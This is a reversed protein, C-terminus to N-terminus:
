NKNIVKIVSEIIKEKLVKEEIVNIAFTRNGAYNISTGCHYVKKKDIIFFRDHYNDNHIVSLNSYEKNYKQIDLSKLMSKTKTILIINVKLDKIMDLVSKDAYGDIIILEEKAEKFIDVIKSYADYIQGEFYIENKNLKFEKFTEQLIRIDETNKLVQNYLYRQDKLNNGIIHRMLVFANMIRISVKIATDSKLITSLMAVGQETFVYPLYKINNGRKQKIENLTANQSRSILECEDWTLQFCFEQPFKLPNRRVAENIRKTEVNYLKALDSAIMVEKGRIQYIMNEIILNDNEMIENM